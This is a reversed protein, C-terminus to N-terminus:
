KPTVGKDGGAAGPPAIVSMDSTAPPRIVPMDGTLPPTVVPPAVSTGDSPAAGPGRSPPVVKEPIATSSGPPPVLTQARIPNSLISLALVLAFVLWLWWPQPEPRRRRLAIAVARAKSSGGAM